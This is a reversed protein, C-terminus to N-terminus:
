LPLAIGSGSPTVTGTDLLRTLLQGALGEGQRVAQAVSASREHLIARDLALGALGISALLPGAIAYALFAAAAGSSEAEKISRAVFPAGM